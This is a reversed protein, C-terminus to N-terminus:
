GTEEQGTGTTESAFYSYETVATEGLLTTLQRQLHGHLDPIQKLLVAAAARNDSPLGRERWGFAASVLEYGPQASEAYWSAAVGNCAVKGTSLTYTVRAPLLIARTVERRALTPVKNLKYELSQLETSRLKGLAFAASDMIVTRRDPRMSPVRHDVGALLIGSDMFDLRDVAPFRGVCPSTCLHHWTSWFLSLRTALEQSKGSTWRCVTSALESMDSPAPLTPEDLVVAVDVDSVETVFGGHALSGLLFIGSHRLPLLQGAADTLVSLVRSVEANVIWPATTEPRQQNSPHWVM